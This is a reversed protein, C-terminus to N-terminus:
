YEPPSAAAASHYAQCLRLNARQLFLRPPTEWPCPPVIAQRSAQVISLYALISIFCFNVKFLIGHTVSTTLRFTKQLTQARQRRDAEMNVNMKIRKHLLKLTQTTTQLHLMKDVDDCAFCMRSRAPERSNYTPLRGGLRSTFWSISNRFAAKTEILADGHGPFGTTRAQLADSLWKANASNRVISSAVTPKCSFPSLQRPYEYTVLQMLGCIGNM